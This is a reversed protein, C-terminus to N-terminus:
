KGHPAESVETSEEQPKVIGIAVASYLRFMGCNKCTLLLAPYARVKAQAVPPASPVNVIYRAGQWDTVGCSSCPTLAKKDQMWKNAALRESDTLKGDNEPM